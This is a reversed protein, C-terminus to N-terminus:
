DANVFDFTGFVNAAIDYLSEFDYRARMEWREGHALWHRFKFAGRMEGILRKSEPVTKKWADFIDDLRVNQRGSKHIARFAKFLEGKM